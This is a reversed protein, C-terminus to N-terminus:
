SPIHSQHNDLYWDAIEERTAWWVDDFSNAYELFERIARVRFPHGSVHPHLGVSMIKGTEASELYLQDFQEKLMEITQSTTFNRRLFFGFDNVEISYPIAVIPGSDTQMLYPQEDNMYDCIFKMGKRAIIEPTNPTSRLSSSLWGPSKRGVVEEYVKLASDILAEEAAPDSQYNTLLDGQEYNHCVLEWGRDKAAEVIDRRELGLKANLTCSSPVGVGDFIDILRWIGARQGYERWSFNPVDLVNGPMPDPLAPPGGAYYPQDSEKMMDWFELNLTVQVVLRKGNPWKLPKRKPPPVFDYRM